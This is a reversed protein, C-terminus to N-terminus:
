NYYNNNDYVRLIDLNKKVLASKKEKRRSRFRKKVRDKKELEIEIEKEGNCNHQM